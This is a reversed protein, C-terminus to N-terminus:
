YMVCANTYITRWRVINGEARPKNMNSSIDCKGKVYATGGCQQTLLTDNRGNYAVWVTRSKETGANEIIVVSDMKWLGRGMRMIPLAISIRLYVALHDIFPAVIVEVGRKRMLLEETVYIQDIRTAESVSYYTCVKRTPNGQWTDTLALGHVLEGLARSYNFGGTSDSTELIFDFDGGLM